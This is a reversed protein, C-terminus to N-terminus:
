RTDRQDAAIIKARDGGTKGTPGINQKAALIRTECARKVCFMIVSKNTRRNGSLAPYGTHPYSRASVNRLHCFIGVKGAFCM